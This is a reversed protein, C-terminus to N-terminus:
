EKKPIFKKLEVIEVDIALVRLRLELDDIIALNDTTIYVRVFPADANDITRVFGGPYTIVIHKRYKAHEFAGRLRSVLVSTEDSTYGHLEINPM